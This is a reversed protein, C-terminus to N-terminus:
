MCKQSREYIGFAYFYVSSEVTIKVSEPDILAFATSLINIFYFGTATSGEKWTQSSTWAEVESTVGVNINVSWRVADINVVDYNNDVAKKVDRRRSKVDSHRQFHVVRKEGDTHREKRSTAIRSLRIHRNNKRRRRRKTLFHRQKQRKKVVKRNQRRDTNM